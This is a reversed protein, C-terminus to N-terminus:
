PFFVHWFDQVFDSARWFFPLYYPFLICTFICIIVGLVFGFIVDSPYHAGLYIRTYAVLFAFPILIMYLWWEGVVVFLIFSCSSYYVSHGSPFSTHRSIVFRDKLNIKCNIGKAIFPRDRRVLYKIIVTLFGGNISTAYLWFSLEYFDIIYLVGAVGLWVVFSGIHSFVKFFIDIFSSFSRSNIRCSWRKDFADIKRIFSPIM